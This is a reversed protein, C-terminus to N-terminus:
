TGFRGIREKATTGAKGRLPGVAAQGARADPLGGPREEPWQDAKPKHHGSRIHDVEWFECPVLRLLM